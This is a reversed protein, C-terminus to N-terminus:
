YWYESKEISEQLTNIIINDSIPNDEKFYM